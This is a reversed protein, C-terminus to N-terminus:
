RIPEWNKSFSKNLFMVSIGNLLWRWLTRIYGLKRFRRPSELVCISDIFKIKSVKAIRRYLDFDEGAFIKPNYGNVRFFVERRIVQCEGRGMGIGVFNLFRVFNNHLFYFLKDKFKEEEPYARVKFALAGINKENNAFNTVVKLFKEIDNPITDGNIFVLINGSSIQAGLNRGEGITQKINSHKHTVIKKTYKHAIEVTKDTSGGDSVILECNYKILLEPKYQSLIRDLLKEEQFVPVIISILPPTQERIAIPRQTAFSLPLIDTRM